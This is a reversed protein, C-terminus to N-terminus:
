RHATLAGSVAPGCGANEKDLAAFEADVRDQIASMRVARVTPEVTDTTSARVEVDADYPIAVEQDGAGALEDIADLQDL